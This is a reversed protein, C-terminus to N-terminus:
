ASGRGRSLFEASFGVGRTRVAYGNRRLPVGSPAGLDVTLRAGTEPTRHVGGSDLFRVQPILRARKGRASKAFPRFYKAERRQKGHRNM